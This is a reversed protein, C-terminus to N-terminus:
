AARKVIHQVTAQEAKPRLTFMIVGDDQVLFDGMAIVQHEGFPFRSSKISCAVCKGANQKGGIASLAYGGVQVRRLYVDLKDDSFGVMVRDGAIWRMQKMVGIGIRIIGQHGRANKGAKHSAVIFAYDPSRAGTPRLGSGRMPEIWNISM